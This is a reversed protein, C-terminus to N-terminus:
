NFMDRVVWTGYFIEWCTSWVRCQGLVIVLYKGFSLDFLKFVNELLNVLYKGFRLDITECVCSGFIKWVYLGIIKWFMWEGIGLVNILCNDRLIEWVNGFAHGLCKGFANNYYKEDFQGFMEWRTFWVNVLGMSWINWLCVYIGFIEWCM